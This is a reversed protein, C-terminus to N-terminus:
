FPMSSEEEKKKQDYVWARGNWGTPIADIKISLSGDKEILKGITLYQKKTEGNSNTYEWVTAVVNRINAM